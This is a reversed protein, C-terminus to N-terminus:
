VTETVQLSVTAHHCLVGGYLVEDILLQAPESEMDDIDGHLTADADMADCVDEALAAFTTETSASDDLGMYGHIEFDHTRYTNSSTGLHPSTASLGRYVVMWFRVQTSGGITATAITEIDGQKAGWRMRNHTTGKNPVTDLVTKIRARITAESM